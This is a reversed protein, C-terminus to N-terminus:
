YIFNISTYRENFPITSSTTQPLVLMINQCGGRMISINPELEQIVRQRMYYSDEDMLKIHLDSLNSEDTEESDSAVESDSDSESVEESENDELRTAGLLEMNELYEKKFFWAKHKPKWWADYFYKEGIYWTRRDMYYIDVDLHFIFLNTLLQDSETEVEESETESESDSNNKSVMTAGLAKFNELYQKRFFWANHQPKM